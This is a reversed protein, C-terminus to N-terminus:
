LRPLAVSLTPYQLASPKSGLDIGILRGKPPLSPALDEIAIPHRMPAVRSDRAPACTSQRTALSRHGIAPPEADSNALWIDAIYLPASANWPTKSSQIDTSRSVTRRM